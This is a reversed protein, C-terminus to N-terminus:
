AVAIYAGNDIPVYTLLWRVTGTAATGTTTLGMTGIQGVQAPSSRAGGGANTVSLASSSSMPLIIISGVEKSALSATTSWDVATGVTPVGTFKVSNATAPTAEIVEGILSTVLVKGGIISFLAGYATAPLLAAARSVQPGLMIRRFASGDNLVSM